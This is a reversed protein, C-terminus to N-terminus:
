SLHLDCWWHPTDHQSRTHEFPLVFRHEYCSAGWQHVSNYGDHVIIITLFGV